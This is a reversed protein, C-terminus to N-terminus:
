KNANIHGQVFRPLTLLTNVRTVGELASWDEADEAKGCDAVSAEKMSPITKTRPDDTNLFLCVVACDDIKSTPYKFKWARVAHEVLFRAASSRSPASAVIGVVEENSLVDWIGDTALVIFEDNECIRRYSIDPISILGFDKLCFDGFARAMALGPTDNNPLWIRAVEPEDELAFVRGRHRKIREAEKPLNPKLDVTLQVAVLCDNSDRTGLVARSDGVNGIVLDQGQKVLTVATTGSCFCDINQHLKLERDMFKFAELLSDKLATLDEPLKEEDLDFSTRSEDELCLSATEESIISGVTSLSNQKFDDGGLSVEWQASLKLPLSDRVRRSVMHGYPGHGDFVGCFVTSKRSGFNEWVIMADQNTGKKGQQSYLSAVSSAGNLFMRGPIRQLHDEGHISGSSSYRSSGKRKKMAKKSCLRPSSSPSKSLGGGGWDSSLCSGMSLARIIGALCELSALTGIGRNEISAETAVEPPICGGLIGKQHNSLRRRRRRWRGEKGRM